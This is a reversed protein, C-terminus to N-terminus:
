STSGHGFAATVSLPSCYCALHLYHHLIFTNNEVIIYNLLVLNTNIKRAVVFGFFITCRETGRSFSASHGSRGLQTSSWPLMNLSIWVSIRSTEWVVSVTACATSISSWIGTSTIPETRIGSDIDLGPGQDHQCQVHPRM